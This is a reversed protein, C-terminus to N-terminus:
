ANGSSKKREVAARSLTLLGKRLAAGEATLSYEVRPPIEGFVKRRILGAAELESLRVTLTSSSIEGMGAKLESFRVPGRDALLSLLLLSYKRGVIQAIGSPLCLCGSKEESCGCSNDEPLISIM